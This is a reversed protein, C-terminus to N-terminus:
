KRRRATLGIIMLGAGLLLFTAPEPTATVAPATQIATLAAYNFGKGLGFLATPAADNLGFRYLTANDTSDSAIAYFLDTVPDWTLGGRFGTGLAIPLAVTTVNNLDIYRFSSAGQADTRITYLRSDTDRLALGGVLNDGIVPSPVGNFAISSNGQTDNQIWAINQGSNSFVMGGGRFEPFLAIPIAGGATSFFSLLTQGGGTSLLGVFVIGTDTFLGGAFSDTGNGITTITTTSSNAVDIQVLQNPVGTNSAGITYLIPAAQLSFSLLITYTLTRVLIHM